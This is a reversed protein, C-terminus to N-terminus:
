KVLDEAAAPILYTLALPLVRVERVQFRKPLLVNIRTDRERTLLQRTREVDQRLVSMQEEIERLRFEAEVQMEEFLAPQVADAREQVLEKALKRLQQERSRDQLEKLRHQYSDKAAKLERALATDARGQLVTRMENERRHLFAELQQQHQFWHGRVTRIWNDRRPTSAIQLPESQLVVQEFDHEVATLRDGEARFVTSIVEDHLPERLENIATMTYHFALLAEFGSRHLAAISWRYVPDPGGPDHLQRCLTAMAQRMIPHSLRMLVQHKKLRLVMRGSIEQEVLATDFVLEMRDTRSGVTLTQRALGEWRPPPRLRYFGNRGQIEELSGQGEVLVATQLITALSDTSIGLRSDTSELLERARRTLDALDAASSQGLESRGLSGAVQQDVFQSLLDFNTAQGRFHRQIAASFVREVSGLDEKVQNVKKAVKLLFALDEDQDCRFYFTSVDRWQGYRSVRGNRQQIKSPSWPIDYHIVWRCEQQMNIGESAADTALLLRVAASPDEFESKVAEFDDLNM